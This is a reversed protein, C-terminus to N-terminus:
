RAYARRELWDLVGAAHTDPPFVPYFVHEVVGDCVVLTLRKLLTLGALEFTPLALARTLQLEEDSVLPFPLGLREAAERQVDSAQTSVGVVAAGARGLEAAHDRFGCSEPTCGRAGPISDWDPTLLPEGPRATRPYAYVVLRRFGDPPRDLRLRRGDTAPLALTPMEAGPLHAAAGDDQPAPLGPPLVTPDHIM